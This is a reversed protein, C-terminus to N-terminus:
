FYYMLYFFIYNEEEQAKEIRVHNNYLKISVKQNKGFCLHKRMEMPIVVRGLADLNRKLGVCIDENVKM